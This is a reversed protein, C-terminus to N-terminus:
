YNSAKKAEEVIKKMEGFKEDMDKLLAIQSKARVLNHEEYNTKYYVDGNIYDSLFRVSQEYTLLKAGFALTDFELDTLENKMYKLYGSIFGEFISMNIGVVSIDPEDENAFNAGNRIADGIDYCVYGPMVTDLDIICLVEDNKDLLVNNFKTDQHIVRLPLLNGQGMEVIRCFENKRKLLFDLENSIRGVRNERDKKIAVELIEIRKKTNHFDPITAKIKEASLDSILQHFEGFAAGAIYAQKINQMNSYSHSEKIFLFMRWFDGNGSKFYLKNDLTPIITLVRRDLKLIGQQIKKKRIHDTVIKINNSLVDINKFINHNIKQLVYIPEHNHDYVVFTTNILGDGYERVESVTQKLNFESLIESFFKSIM